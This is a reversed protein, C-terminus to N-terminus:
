IAAEIEDSADNGWDPIRPNPINVDDEGFSDLRGFKMSDPRRVNTPNSHQENNPTTTTGGYSENQLQEALIRSEDEELL